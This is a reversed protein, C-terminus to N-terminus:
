QSASIGALICFFVHFSDVTIHAGKKIEGM